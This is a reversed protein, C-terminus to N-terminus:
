FLQFSTEIENKPPAVKIGRDVAVPVPLTLTDSQIFIIHLYLFEGVNLGSVTLKRNIKHM